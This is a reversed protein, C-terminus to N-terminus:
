TAITGVQGYWQPLVYAVPMELIWCLVSILMQDVYAMTKNQKTKVSSDTRKTNSTESLFM